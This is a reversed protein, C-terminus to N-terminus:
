ARRRKLALGAVGLLLLLGSTPEPITQSGGGSMSKMASSAISSANQLIVKGATYSTEISGDDLASIGSVTASDWYKTGDAVVFVADFTSGPTLGSVGTATKSGSGYQVMNANENITWGNATSIESTVLAKALSGAVDSSDWDTSQLIYLTYGSLAQADTRYTWGQAANNVATDSFQWYFQAAQAGAAVAIAAFAIMLKKM